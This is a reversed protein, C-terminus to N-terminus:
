EEPKKFSFKDLEIKQVVVNKSKRYKGLIKSAEKELKNLNDSFYIMCTSNPQLSNFELYNKLQYSYQDRRPRFGDKGLKVSDLKQIETFYVITDTFSAGVGFAYVSKGHDKKMSFASCVAFVVTVAFLIKVFRM